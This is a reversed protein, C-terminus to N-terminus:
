MKSYEDKNEHMRKMGKKDQERNSCHIYNRSYEEPSLNEIM